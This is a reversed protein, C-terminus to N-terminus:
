LDKIKQRTGQFRVYYLLLYLSEAELAKNRTMPGDVIILRGFKKGGERHEKERKRPNKTIGIYVIGDTSYQRSLRYVYVKEELGNM